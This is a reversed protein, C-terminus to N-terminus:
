TFDELQDFHRAEFRQFDVHICIRLDFDENNPAMYLNFKHIVYKIIIKLDTSQFDFVKLHSAKYNHFSVHSHASLNSSFDAM